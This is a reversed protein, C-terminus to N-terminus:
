IWPCPYWFSEHGSKRTKQLMKRKTEVSQNLTHFLKTLLLSVFHVYMNTYCAKRKMHPVILVRGKISFNALCQEVPGTNKKANNLGALLQTNGVVHKQGNARRIRDIREVQDHDSVEGQEMRCLLVAHSAKAVTWSFDQADDLLEILYNLMHSKLNQDNEERMTRCFGAMWQTMTLQDYSICEKISGALVIEHPWKVHNRVLVEM